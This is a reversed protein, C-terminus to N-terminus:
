MYEQKTERVEARKRFETVNPLRNLITRPEPFKATNLTLPVWGVRCQRDSVGNGSGASHFFLYCLSIPFGWAMCNGLMPFVFTFTSINDFALYIFLILSPGAKIEGVHLWPIRLEVTALWLVLM